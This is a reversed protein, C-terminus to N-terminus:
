LLGLQRLSRFVQEAIARNGAANPHVGDDFYEPHEATFAYLDILPLALTESTRRLIPLVEDRIVEDRIDYGVIGSGDPFAKPPLLLVPRCGSARLEELMRLLGQEYRAADWNCPKTDNTGLMVLALEAKRALSLFGHERYPFDASDNATAACVGLNLVQLRGGDLMRGLLYPWADRRRTHVVAAGFTISDGVCAVYRKGPIPRDARPRLLFRWWLGLAADKGANLLSKLDKM